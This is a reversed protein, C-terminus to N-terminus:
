LLRLDDIIFDILSPFFPPFPPPIEIVRLDEIDLFDQLIMRKECRKGYKRESILVWFDAIPLRRLHDLWALETGQICKPGPWKEAYFCYPTLFTRFAKDHRLFMRYIYCTEFNVHSSSDSIGEFCGKLDMYCRELNPAFNLVERAFRDKTPHARFSFSKLVPFPPDLRLDQAPGYLVKLAQKHEERGKIGALSDLSLSLLHPWKRSVFDLLGIQHQGGRSISTIKLHTCHMILSERLAFFATWVDHQLELSKPLFVHFRTRGRRASLMVTAVCSLIHTKSCPLYVEIERLFNNWRRGLSWPGPLKEPALTYNLSYASLDIYLRSHWFNPDLVANAWNKCVMTCRFLTELEPCQRSRDHRNMFIPHDNLVLDEDTNHEDDLWGKTLGIAFIRQLIDDPLTAFSFHTKSVNRCTKVHKNTRYFRQGAIM